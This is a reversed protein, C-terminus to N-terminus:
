CSGLGNASPVVCDVLASFLLHRCLLFVCVGSLALLSCLRAASKHQGARIFLMGQVSELLETLLEKNMTSLVDASLQTRQSRLKYRFCSVRVGPYM